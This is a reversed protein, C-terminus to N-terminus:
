KLLYLIKLERLFTGVRKNGNNFLIATHMNKAFFCKRKQYCQFKIHKEYVRIQDNKVRRGSLRTVPLEQLLNLIGITEKLFYRSLVSLLFISRQFPTESGHYRPFSERAM